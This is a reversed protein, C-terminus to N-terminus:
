AAGGLGAAGSWTYAHANAVIYNGAAGGATVGVGGGVGGNPSGGQGGATSSGGSGGSGSGSSGYGGAGGRGQNSATLSATAQVYLHKVTGNCPDGFVGNTAPIYVTGTRNLVYNQVTITSGAAHCGGITFAGCSGTPTGYSAFDVSTFTYGPPATLALTGNEGIAGCIRVSLAPTGGAGGGGGGGGYYYTTSTKGLLGSTVTQSSSGGGNGGGGGGAIVGNNQITFSPTGTGGLSIANGGASGAAGAAPYTGGNGGNGGAGLIRGNNVLSFQDGTTLGDLTLAPTTTYASGVTFTAAVTLSVRSKGVRVGSYGAGTLQQSLTYSASNGTSTM